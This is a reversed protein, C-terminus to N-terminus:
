HLIIVYKTWVGEGDDRWSEPGNHIYYRYTDGLSDKYQATMVYGWGKSGNYIDVFYSSLTTDPLNSVSSWDKTEDTPKATKEWSSKKTGDPISGSWVFQVYKGNNAFQDDEYAEIESFIQLAETTVSDVGLPPTNVSIIAVGGIFLAIFWKKFRKFKEKIKNLM